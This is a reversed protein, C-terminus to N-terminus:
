KTRHFDTATGWHKSTKKPRINGGPGHPQVKVLGQYIKDENKRTSFFNSDENKSPVRQNNLMAM